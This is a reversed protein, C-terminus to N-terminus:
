GNVINYLVESQVPLPHSHKAFESSIDERDDFDLKRRKNGEEKNKIQSSSNPLQDAQSNIHEMADSVYASIPCSWETVMEPSLTREKLGGRATKIAIQESFQDGSVSNWCGESHRCVLAGALLDTMAEPPLLYRMDICM